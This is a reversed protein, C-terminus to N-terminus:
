TAHWRAPRGPTRTVCEERQLAKLDALCTDYRGPTIKDYPYGIVDIIESVTLGDHARRARIWVLLSERRERATM